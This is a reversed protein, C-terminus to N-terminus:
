YSGSNAISVIILFIWTVIKLVIPIAGMIVGSLGMSRDSKSSQPSKMAIFGLIIALLNFLIFFWGIVPIIGVLGIIGLVLAAIGM